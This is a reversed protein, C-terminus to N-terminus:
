KPKVAAPEPVSGDKAMCDRFYAARDGTGRVSGPRRYPYAVYSYHMCRKAIEPSPGAAATAPFCIDFFIVLLISARMHSSELLDKRISAKCVCYDGSIEELRRM